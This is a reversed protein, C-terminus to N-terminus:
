QAFLPFKQKPLSCLVRGVKVWQFSALLIQGVWLGKINKIVSTVRVIPERCIGTAIVCKLHCPALLLPYVFGTM